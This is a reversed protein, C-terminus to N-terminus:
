GTGAWVMGGEAAPESVGSKRGKRQFERNELGLGEWFM